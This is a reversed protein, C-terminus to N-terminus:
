NMYMRNLTTIVCPPKANKEEVAYAKLFDPHKPMEAYRMFAGVLKDFYEDNVSQNMM